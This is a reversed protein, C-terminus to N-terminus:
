GRVPSSMPLGGQRGLRGAGLIEALRALVTFRVAAYGGRQALTRRLHLGAHHDPVIVTVASPSRGGPPRAGALRALRDRPPRTRGPLSDGAHTLPFSSANCQAGCRTLTARPRSLQSGASTPAKVAGCKTLWGRPLRPAARRATISPPETLIGFWSSLVLM